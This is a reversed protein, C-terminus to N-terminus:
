PDYFLEPKAQGTIKYYNENFILKNEKEDWDFSCGAPSHSFHAKQYAVKNKAREGYWTHHDIFAINEPIKKCSLSKYDIYKGDKSLYKCDDDYYLSDLKGAPIQIKYIRPPCFGKTYTKSDFTYNKFNINFYDSLPNDKVYKLINKIESEKYIEDVGLLYLYDIGNDILPKLALNRAAHESLVNAPFICYDIDGRELYEHLKEISGDDETEALDNGEFRAYVVSIVIDLGAQKLALWPALCPEIFDKERFLSLLVGIRM